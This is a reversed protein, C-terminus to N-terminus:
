AEERGRVYERGWVELREELVAGVRVVESLDMGFDDACVEGGVRKEGGM